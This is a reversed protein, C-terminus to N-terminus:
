LYSPWSASHRRSTSSKVTRYLWRPTPTPDHTCLWQRRKSIWLVCVFNPRGSTGVERASGSLTPNNAPTVAVFIFDVPTVAQFGFVTLHTASRGAVSRHYRFFVYNTIVSYKYYKLTCNAGTNLSQNKCLLPEVLKIFDIFIPTACFHTQSTDPM